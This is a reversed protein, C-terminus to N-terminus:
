LLMKIPISQESASNLVSNHLWFMTMGGAAIRPLSRCELATLLSCTINCQPCDLAIVMACPPALPDIQVEIVAKLLDLLLM